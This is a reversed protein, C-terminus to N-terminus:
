GEYATVDSWPGWSERACHQKWNYLGFIAAEPLLISAAYMAISIHRNNCNYDIFTLLRNDTSKKEKSLELMTQTLNMPFISCNWGFFITAPDNGCWKKRRQWREGWWWRLLDEVATEAEYDRQSGFAKMQDQSVRHVPGPRCRPSMPFPESFASCNRLFRCKSPELASTSQNKQNGLTTIGLELTPVGKICRTTSTGSM